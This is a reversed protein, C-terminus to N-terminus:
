VLPCGMGRVMGVFLKSSGFPQQTVGEGEWMGVWHLNIPSLPRPALIFLGSSLVGSAAPSSGVRRGGGRYPGGMLFEASPRPFNNSGQPIQHSFTGGGRDPGRGILSKPPDFPWSGTGYLPPPIPTGYLPPYYRPYIALNITRPSHPFVNKVRAYCNCLIM